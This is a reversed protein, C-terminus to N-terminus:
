LPFWFLTWLFNANKLGLFLHPHLGSLQGSISYLFVVHGPHEPHSLYTWSTRNKPHSSTAIHKPPLCCVRYLKTPDTTMIVLSVFFVRIHFHNLAAHDFNKTCDVWSNRLDFFWFHQHFFTFCTSALSITPKTPGWLSWIKIPSILCVSFEIIEMFFQPTSSPFDAFFLLHELWTQSCSPLDM